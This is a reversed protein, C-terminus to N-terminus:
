PKELQSGCAPCNPFGSFNRGTAFRASNVEGKWSCHTCSAKVTRATVAQPGRLRDRENLLANLKAKVEDPGATRPLKLSKLVAEGMECYKQAHGLASKGLLIVLREDTSAERDILMPGGIPITGDLILQYIALEIKDLKEHDM